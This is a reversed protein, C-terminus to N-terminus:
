QTSEVQGWVAVQSCQPWQGMGGTMVLDLRFDSVWSSVMIFSSVNLSDFFSIFDRCTFDSSISCHVFRPESRIYPMGTAMSPDRASLSSVSKLAWSFIYGDMWSSSISTACLSGWPRGVPRGGGSAALGWTSPSPAAVVAAVSLRRGTTIRFNRLLCVFSLTIAICVSKFSM